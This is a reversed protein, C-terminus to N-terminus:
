DVYRAPRSLGFADATLEEPRAVDHTSVSEDGGITPADSVARSRGWYTGDETVETPSQM